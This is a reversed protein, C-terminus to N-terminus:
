IIARSCQYYDDAMEGRVFRFNDDRAAFHHLDAAPKADALYDLCGSRLQVLDACCILGREVIVRFRNPSIRSENKFNIAAIKENATKNFRRRRCSASLQRSFYPDRIDLLQSAA